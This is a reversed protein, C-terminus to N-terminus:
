RAFYDDFMSDTRPAMVHQPPQVPVIIQPQYYLMEPETTPQPPQETIVPKPKPVPLNSPKYGPFYNFDNKYPKIPSKSRNTPM